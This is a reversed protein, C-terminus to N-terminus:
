TREPDSITKDTKEAPTSAQDKAANIKDTLTQECPLAYGIHFTRNHNDGDHTDDPWSRTVFGASIHNGERRSEPVENEQRRMESRSQPNYDCLAEGGPIYEVMALTAEYGDPQQLTIWTGPYEEDEKDFVHLTGHPTEVTFDKEKQPHVPAYLDFEWPVDPIDKAEDDDLCLDAKSPFYTNGDLRCRDSQILQVLTEKAKDYDKGSLIAAEEPTANLTMGVRAWLPITQPENPEPARNGNERNNMHAAVYLDLEEFSDWVRDLAKRQHEHEIGILSFKLEDYGARMQKTTELNLIEKHTEAFVRLHTNDRGSQLYDHSAVVAESGLMLFLCADHSSPPITNLTNFLDPDLFKLGPYLNYPNSSGM